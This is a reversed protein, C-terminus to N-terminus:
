KLVVVPADTKAAVVKSAVTPTSDSTGIFLVAITCLLGFITTTHM